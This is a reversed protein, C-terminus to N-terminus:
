NKEYSVHVFNAKKYFWFYFYFFFFNIYLLYNQFIVKKLLQVPPKLTELLFANTWSNKKTFILFLFSGEVDHLNLKRFVPHKVITSVFLAAAEWLPLSIVNGHCPETFLKPFTEDAARSFYFSCRVQRVQFFSKKELHEGLVVDVLAVKKGNICHLGGDSLLNLHDGLLFTCDVTAEVSRHVDPPRVGRSM